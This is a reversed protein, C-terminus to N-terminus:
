RGGPIASPPVNVVVHIETGNVYRTGGAPFVNAIAGSEASFGVQACPAFNTGEIKLDLNQSGASIQNPTVRLINLSQGRGNPPQPCPIGAAAPTCGQQGPTVTFPQPSALGHDAVMLMIQRPGLPAAPDIQLIAQIQGPSLVGASTVTIGTIPSIHLTVPARFNVGTFTVTVISGQAGSSPTFARLAPPGQTTTQGRGPTFTGPPAAGPKTNQALLAAPALCVAALLALSREITRRM